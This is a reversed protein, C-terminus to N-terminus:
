KDLINDEADSAVTRRSFLSANTKGINKRPAYERAQETSSQTANRNFVGIGRRVPSRSSSGSGSLSSTKTHSAATTGPAPSVPTSRGSLNSLARAGRLSRDGVVGSGTRKLSTPKSGLPKDLDVQNKGNSSGSEVSGASDPSQRPSTPGIPSPIEVPEPTYPKEPEPARELASPPQPQPTVQVTRSVESEVPPPPSPLTEPVPSAQVPEVTKSTTPIPEEAFKPPEALKFGKTEEVPEPEASVLPISLEESKPPLEPEPTSREDSAKPPVAVPPTTTGSPFRTHGPGPTSARSQPGHQAAHQAALLQQPDIGASIKSRSVRQDVMKTRKRVLIPGSDRKKAALVKPLLAYYHNVLDMFFVTPHREELSKQTEVKPRLIALKTVYLDLSEETQTTDILIRLHEIISDLVVLHVKPLKLLAIRLEQLKEEDSKGSGGVQPYIKKIDDWSDWVCLPPNLELLWLKLTSALIPADYKAMLDMPVVGPPRLTNIAERLHHVSPLPVHMTFGFKAVSQLAALSLHTLFEHKFYHPCEGTDDPLKSYAEALGSLIGRVVNPVLDQKDFDKQDEISPIANYGGEHAWKRLDVGFISDGQEHTISEYLPPCPRFPGTRYREILAIIDTEPQFSTVAVSSREFSSHLAGPINAIIGQYQLLVTKIMRLREVEWRQLVKLTEEVKEELLLRQRDLRRVGVRYLKEADHAENRARIHPPENNNGAVAKQVMSVLTNTRKVLNEAVPSILAGPDLKDQTLHFEFASPRFQFYADRANLFRNGLEGIRRLADERETLDIAAQEAADLKGGFGQVNDKLWVVFEEGSFCDTYEGLIPFRVKRLPLESAARDLLQSLSRPPFALGGIIIPQPPPPGTDTRVSIKPIPHELDPLPPSLRPPSISVPSAIEQPPSAIEKSKGKDKSPITPTLELKEGESGVESKGTSFVPSSPSLGKREENELEVGKRLEKFRQAIRESVSATRNSVRRNTPTLNPSLTYPDGIDRGPAFKVNDEVEDARRTKNMYALKLKDVDAIAQEYARIWGDLMDKKNDAIRAAHKSAWQGFPDAAITVLEQAAVKHAEGQKRSEAQLSRFTAFLSAGDDVGFGSDQPVTSQNTLLALALENEALARAKIFNFIEIDEILGEELKQYLTELGRRYDQSWFSNAFTMPLTIAPM